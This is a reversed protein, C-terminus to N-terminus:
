NSECEEGGIITFSIGYGSATADLIRYEPTMLVDSIDVMSLYLTDIFLKSLVYMDSIIAERELPTTDPADQDLFFMTIDHRNTTQEPHYTTRVPLLCVYPAAENFDLSFDTKRAHTFWGTTNVTNVTNRILTVVSQYTM